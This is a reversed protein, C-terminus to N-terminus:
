RPLRAPTTGAWAAVKDFDRRYTPNNPRAWCDVGLKHASEDVLAKTRLEMPLLLAPAILNRDAEPLELEDLHDVPELIGSRCHRHAHLEKAFSPWRRAAGGVHRADTKSPENSKSKWARRRTRIAAFDAALLGSIKRTRRIGGIANFEHLDLITMM